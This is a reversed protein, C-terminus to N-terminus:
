VISIVLLILIDHQKDDKKKQVLLRYLWQRVQVSLDSTLGEINTLNNPLRSTKLVHFCFQRGWFWDLTIDFM